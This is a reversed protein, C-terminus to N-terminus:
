RGTITMTQYVPPTNVSSFEDFVFRRDNSIKVNHYGRGNTIRTRNKGDYGVKYLQKERTNAENSTYFIEKKEDDTAEITMVEWKGQTVPTVVGSNLAINYLQNYGDK